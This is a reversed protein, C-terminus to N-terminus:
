RDRQRLEYREVNLGFPSARGFVILADGPRARELDEDAGCLARDLLWGVEKINFHDCGKRSQGVGTVTLARSAPQGIAVTAVALLGDEVATFSIFFAFLMMLPARVFVSKMLMRDQGTRVPDFAGGSRSCWAAGAAVALAAFQSIRIALESPLHPSFLMALVAIVMGGALALAVAIEVPGRLRPPRPQAEAAM